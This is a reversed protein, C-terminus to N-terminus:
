VLKSSFFPLPAIYGYLKEFSSIPWRSKTTNSKKEYM